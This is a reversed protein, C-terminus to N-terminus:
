WRYEVRGVFGDFSLDDEVDGTLDGRQLQRIWKSYHIIYYVM